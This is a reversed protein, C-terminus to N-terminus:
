FRSVYSSGSGGGGLGLLASSNGRLEREATDVPRDASVLRRQDPLIQLVRGLLVGPAKKRLM